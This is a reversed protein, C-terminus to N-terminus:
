QVALLVELSSSENHTNARSLKCIWVSASITNYKELTQIERMCRSGIYSYFLEKTTRQHDGIPSEYVRILIAATSLKFLHGRLEGFLHTM